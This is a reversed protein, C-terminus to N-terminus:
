YKNMSNEFIVHVIIKVYSTNFINSHNERIIIIQIKTFKDQFVTFITHFSSRKTETKMIAKIVQFRLPM